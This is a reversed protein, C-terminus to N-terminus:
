PAFRLPVTVALSSQTVGAPAPPMGGRVAALAAADIQSVGSSGVLSAGMVAGSRSVTFRVTAVGGSTGAAANRNMRGRIAAALASRWAAMAGPNSAAGAGAATARSAKSAAAARAAAERQANARADAAAKRQADM